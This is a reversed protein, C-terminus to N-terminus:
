GEVLWFYIVLKFHFFHFELRSMERLRFLIGSVLIFQWSGILFLFIELRNFFEL